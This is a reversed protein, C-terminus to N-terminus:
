AGSWGASVSAADGAPRMVEFGSSGSGGNRLRRLLRLDDSSPCLGLVRDTESDVATLMIVPIDTDHTLRRCLAFGDEGPMMVDLIILDIRAASLKDALDRGDVATTVRLGQGTLFKSLGNRIQPDDDVVLIHPSHTM